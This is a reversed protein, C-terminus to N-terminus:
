AFLDVFCVLFCWVFGGGGAFYAVRSCVFSVLFLLCLEAFLSGSLGSGETWGVLGTLWPRGLRCNSGVGSLETARM